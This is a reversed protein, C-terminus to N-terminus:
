TPEARGEIEPHCLLVYAGEHVSIREFRECQQCDSVSMSRNQAECEVTAKLGAQVHPVSSPPIVQIKHAVRTAVARAPHDNPM